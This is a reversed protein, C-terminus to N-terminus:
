TTWFSGGLTPSFSGGLTATFSGGLTSSSSGLTFSLVGQTMSILSPLWSRRRTVKQSWSPLPEKSAGAGCSGSFFSFFSSGLGAGLGSGLGSGLAPGLAPELGSNDGSCSGSAFFHDYRRAPHGRGASFCTFLQGRQRPPRPQPATKAEGSARTGRHLIGAPTGPVRKGTGSSTFPHVAFHGHGSQGEGAVRMQGPAASPPRGARANQQGQGQDQQGRPRRGLGAEGGHGALLGLRGRLRALFGRGGQRAGLLGLGQHAVGALGDWGDAQDDGDALADGVPREGALPDLPDGGGVGGPHPDIGDVGIVGPLGAEGAQERSQRLYGDD